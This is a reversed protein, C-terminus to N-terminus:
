RITGDGAIITHGPLVSGHSWSHSSKMAFKSARDRLMRALAADSIGSRSAEALLADLRDGLQYPATDSKSKKSFMKQDKYLQLGEGLQRELHFLESEGTILRREIPM